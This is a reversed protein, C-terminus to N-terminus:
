SRAGRRRERLAQAVAPPVFPAPDGGCLIVQRVLTSSIHAHSAGAALLVTEVGATLEANCRSMQSEYEWDLSNRVGRVITRAGLRRAADVVLGELSTVRVGPLDATVARLLEMRRVLPLLESKEPNHAVAVIVQGFLALARRVLELHGLTVPDFTGPFLAPAPASAPGRAGAVRRVKSRSARARSPM